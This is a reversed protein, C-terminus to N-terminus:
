DELKDAIKVIRSLRNNVGSKSLVPDILEGLDKFSLEQNEWRLLAIEQLSPPLAAIGITNQIKEIADLQRAAAGVIRNINAEDFNNHRQIDAKVSRILKTNELDFALSPAGMLVLFDGISQSDKVYVLWKNRFGLNAKLDLDLCLGQLSEALEKEKVKFELHYSKNPDTLSGCALFAGKLYARQLKMRSTFSRPIKKVLEGAAKVGLDELVKKDEVILYYMNFRSAVGKKSTLSLQAGEEKLKLYAYRVLSAQDSSFGEEGYSFRLFGSLLAQIEEEEQTILLDKLRTSYSM